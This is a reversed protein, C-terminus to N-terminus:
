SNEVNVLQLKFFQSCILGVLTTYLATSMGLAMSKLAERLTEVQTADIEAFSVGLMLIFGAVTGIMGLALMSESFFWGVSLASDVNNGKAKKWTVWGMNLSTLIYLGIIIFSIKTQDQSWIETIWGFLHAIYM